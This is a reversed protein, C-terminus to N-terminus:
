FDFDILDVKRFKRGESMVTYEANVFGILEDRGRGAVYFTSCWDDQNKKRSVARFRMLGFIIILFVLGYWLVLDFVAIM